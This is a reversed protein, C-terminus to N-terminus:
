RAAIDCLWQSQAQSFYMDMGYRSFRQALEALFGEERENAANPEATKLMLKFDEPDTFHDSLKM